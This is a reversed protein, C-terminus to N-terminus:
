RLGTKPDRVGMLRDRVSRGTRATVMAPHDHGPFPSEDERVAAWDPDLSTKGLLQDRSLGLIREAAPNSEVIRGDQDHVFMPDPLIQDLLFPYLSGQLPEPPRPSDAEIM